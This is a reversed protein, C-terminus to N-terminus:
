FSTMEKQVDLSASNKLIWSSCHCFVNETSINNKTHREESSLLVSFKAASPGYGYKDDPKLAKSSVLCICLFCCGNWLKLNSYTLTMCPQSMPKPESTHAAYHSSSGVSPFGDACQHRHPHSTQKPRFPMLWVDLCSSPSRTASDSVTHTCEAPDWVCM